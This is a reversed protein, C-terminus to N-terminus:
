RSAVKGPWTLYGQRDRGAAPRPVCASCGDAGGSVYGGQRAEYGYSEERSAYREEYREERDVRAYAHTAPVEIQADYPPAPRPGGALEEKYAYEVVAHEQLGRRHVARHFIRRPAARVVPEPEAAATQVPAAVPAPAEAVAPKCAQEVACCCAKADKQVLVFKSMEDCAALPLALIVAILPLRM